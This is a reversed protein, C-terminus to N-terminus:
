QLASERKKGITVRPEGIAPAVDFIITTPMIEADDNTLGDFMGFHRGELELAKLAATLLAPAADENDTYRKVAAKSLRQIDALVHSAKRQTTESRKAIAEDIVQKINLKSLNQAGIEKATKASYGARIAAQTANLDILYERIFATQKPTHTNQM